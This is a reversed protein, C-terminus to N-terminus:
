LVDPIVLRKGGPCSVDIVVGAISGVHALKALLDRACLQTAQEVGGSGVLQVALKERFNVLGRAPTVPWRRSLCTSLRVAGNM